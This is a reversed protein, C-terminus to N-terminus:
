RYEQGTKPNSWFHLCEYGHCSYSETGPYPVLDNDLIYQIRHKKGLMAQCEPCSETGSEGGFVLTANESGRLKAEVLISDLTAAYGDARAFAEAIPDLGDWEEKLRAFVDVIYGRETAIKDGLWSQTDDDLPLEGGVDQYGEYVTDTFAEAMAVLMKNRFATVPRDSTLYGEVSDYVEAWYTNRIAEYGAGQRKKEFPHTVRMQFKHQGARRITRYQNDNSSYVVIDDDPFKEMANRVRQKEIVEGMDDTDSVDVDEDQPTWNDPILKAEVLLQRAETMTILIEGKANVSKYMQDIVDLKSKNFAIEAIDGEVDRQEFEFDLTEPLEEQLKEQFGLAFDLGGKSTAKRHQTETERGTGLSGGSVPWFERPDYGFALAYGYIMMDTFQRHDFQAPLSSLSTLAVKIDAGQDGVLVQVGSYYERELSKLEATSEELSTLWQQLTLGGNITLIGKPAKSGLQERDHEFVSVLLKALEICRSVACLGLGNMTESPNPFSVVRFYDNPEWNQKEKVANTYRLPTELNGTLFCKTPDVTYLAAMPGNIQSRGIEVPAGLDAQYYNQATVSLGNRWGYLDPSVQFNHLINVFKKVQIKGGVLTWGRNKDISVVSQLIGLLYPEKLAVRALWADRKGSDAKYPPETFIENKAWGYIQNFFHAASKADITFRPQKSETATAAARTIQEAARDLAKIQTRTHKTM